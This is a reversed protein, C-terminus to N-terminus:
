GSASTPSSTTSGPSAVRFTTSSASWARRGGCRPWPKRGPSTVPSSFSKRRWNPVTSSFGPTCMRATWEAEFAPDYGPLPPNFTNGGLYNPVSFSDAFLGDDDNNAMQALVQDSWWSRWSPDDLQMLYWGWGCQYVRQSGSRYFWSDQAAADGPWEQTWTDDIVYLYAGNPTCGGSTARYGLGLGLRYHLIVFDPNVARLADADARTMKQTGAYHTAAFTTQGLSLWGLQDNFVHIGATTDPLPRPNHAAAHAAASWAGNAGLLAAFGVIIVFRAGAQRDCIM